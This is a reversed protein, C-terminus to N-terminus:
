EFHEEELYIVEIENFENKLKDVLSKVGFIETFTHSGVIQNLGIFKAYQVSYLTKEGTVYVDCGAEKAQSILATSNGAGTIVGVKRILTNSNKWAKVDEGLRNVIREVLEEFTIPEAYLGIGIIEENDRFHTQQIIESVGIEKLLSNCTGFEAFDLPLHIYFHSIGNEGLMKSCQEKMGYIFDWADHHTIILQVNEDAAKKIVEPTLNTTYGVRFFEEKSPPNNFGYEDNESFQEILSGFTNKIFTKFDNLHM